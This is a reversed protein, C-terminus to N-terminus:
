ETLDKVYKKKNCVPSAYISLFIEGLEDNEGVLEEIKAKYYNEFNEREKVSYLHKFEDSKNVLDYAIFNNKWLRFGSIISKDIIEALAKFKENKELGSLDSIDGARIIEGFHFHINGKEEIIGTLVSVIDEGAAKVYKQRRSVYLEKTKLHDCPEYEYSVSVPVISLDEFDQPFKGTGSMDLMKLLGQETIDNGDKARGNKQAIWVSSNGEKIVCRIYESLLMSFNYLERPNFGRFVKIMKNARAVDEIFQETILNDGVAMETTPMNNDVFITQLLGSDLLIDRHNSIFLHRKGDQINELGSVTLKKATKSLISKMSTYMVERQFQEMSTIGYIKRRLEIPDREPFLYLSIPELLPHKAIRHMAPVVESDDFPRIDEFKELM